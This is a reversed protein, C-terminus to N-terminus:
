TVSRRRFLIGALILPAGVWLTLSAGFLWRLRDSFTDVAYLGAPGLVDLSAGMSQIAWMKFVQVPNVLSLAFLHEIRMRLALIGAMLGLDSLFVLGLWTFVAIGTAASARTSMVSILMGISLMVLALVVSLAALRAIGDAHATGSAWALTGACIGLGICLCATLAGALGVFKGILLEWRTVPLALIYALMGRERDSAIGSAGATLGMLPVVLLVLNVLGASTRGFNALGAAGSAAESLYSVGIGLAAFGVSYFVFWRSRLAERLERQAIALVSRLASTAHAGTGANPHLGAQTM